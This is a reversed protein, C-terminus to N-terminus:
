GSGLEIGALITPPAGQVVRNGGFRGPWAPVTM